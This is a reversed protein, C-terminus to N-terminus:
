RRGTDDEVTTALLVVVWTWHYVCLGLLDWVTLASPENYIIYNAYRVSASLRNTSFDCLLVPM